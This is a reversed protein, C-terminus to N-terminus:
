LLGHGAEPRQVQAHVTGPVVDNQAATGPLQPPRIGDFLRQQAQRKLNRGKGEKLHVGILALPQIFASNPQRRKLRLIHRHVSVRARAGNGQAHRAAGPLHDSDFDHRLRHFGGAAVGGPVGDGVRLEMQARHLVHQGLQHLLTKPRIHHQQIRGPLAHLLRHDVRHQPCPGPPHHVDATVHGRLGPVHLQQPLAAVPQLGALRHVHEAIRAAHFVHDGQNPVLGM